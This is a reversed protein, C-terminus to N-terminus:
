QSSTLFATELIVSFKRLVDFFHELISDIWFAKMFSKSPGDILQTYKLYKEMNQQNKFVRYDLYALQPEIGLYLM